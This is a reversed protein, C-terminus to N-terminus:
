NTLQLRTGLATFHRGSSQGAAGLRDVDAITYDLMLRMNDNPYWNLAFSWNKEEGGRVCITCVSGPAGARWNLDLTSYRAAVEFAGWTGASWDFPHSVRLNAFTSINNNFAYPLYTRTEGTVIWAGQLYWGSFHATAAPLEVAYGYYEGALYFNRVMAAAEGGLMLSHRAALPGTGVLDRGDIRIEPFDQLALTRGTNGSDLSQAADVGFQLISDEQPKFGYVARGLLHTGRNVGPTAPGTLAASFAFNDDTGFVGTHQYLTEIGLRATGGGFGATAANVAMARELFLLSASSTADDLSFIPKIIGANFRLHTQGEGADYSLRALNVLPADLIREANEFDMRFEYQLRTFLSGEFGLYFRRPAVGGNLHPVADAGDEFYTAADIQLRARFAITFDGDPSRYAPRGNQYSWADNNPNAQAAAPSAPLALLLAALATRM